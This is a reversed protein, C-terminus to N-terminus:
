AESLKKLEDLAAPWGDSFMKEWDPNTHIEVKVQTKHDHETFSYAETSGIWGKAIDSSRDESGDANLVAVHKVFVEDYPNYKEPNAMTGGGRDSLFKVDSGEKWVGEYHSGPWSVNVWKKYSDPNFMTEWVKKKGANIDIKFEIKKM